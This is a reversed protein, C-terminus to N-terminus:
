LTSIRDFGLEDKKRGAEIERKDEDTLPRPGIIEVKIGEVKSDNAFVNIPRPRIYRKCNNDLYYKIAKFDGKKIMGFMQGECMDVFLSRGMGLAEEMKVAFSKSKRWRYITAKAIGCRKAAVSVLPIEELTELFKQKDNNSRM